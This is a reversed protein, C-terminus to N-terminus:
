DALQGAYSEGTIYFDHGQFFPHKDFWVHIAANLDSATSFDNAEYTQDDPDTAYSLGVGAVMLLKLWKSAPPLLLAALISSAARIATVTCANCEHATGATGISSSRTMQLRQHKDSEAVNDSAPIAM